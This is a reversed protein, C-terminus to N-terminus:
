KKIIEHMKSVIGFYYEIKIGDSKIVTTISCDISSAVNVITTLKNM